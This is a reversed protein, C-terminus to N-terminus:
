VAGNGNHRQNFDDTYKGFGKHQHDSKKGIDRCTMNNGHSKDAQNINKAFHRVPSAYPTEMTDMRKVYKHHEKFQQNGKDLSKNKGKKRGNIKSQCNFFMMFFMFM